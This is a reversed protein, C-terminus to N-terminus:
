SKKNGWFLAIAGGAMAIYGVTSMAMICVAIFFCKIPKNNAYLFAFYFFIPCIFQAQYWFVSNPVFFGNFGVMNIGQLMKALATLFIYLISWKVLIDINHYSSLKVTVSIMLLM